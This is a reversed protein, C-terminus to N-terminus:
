LLLHEYSKRVVCNIGRIKGTECEDGYMAHESNDNSNETYCLFIVTVLYWLWWHVSLIM